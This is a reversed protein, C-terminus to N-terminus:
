LPNTFSKYSKDQMNDFNNHVKLNLIGSIYLLFIIVYNLVVRVYEDCKKEYTLVNHHKTLYNVFWKSKKM